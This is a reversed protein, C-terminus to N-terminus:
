QGGRLYSSIRQITWWLISISGIVIALITVPYLYSGGAVQDFVQMGTIVGYLPDEPDTPLPLPAIEESIVATQFNDFFVQPILWVLYAIALVLLLLGVVALLFLGLLGLFYLINAFLDSLLEGLAEGIINSLLDGLGNLFELIANLVDFLAALALLSIIINLLRIITAGFDELWVILQDLRCGIYRVWSTNYVMVTEFNDPGPAAWPWISLFWTTSTVPPILAMPPSLCEGPQGTTPPETGPPPEEPLSPPEDSFIVCIFDIELGTDGLITVDGSTYTDTLAFSTQLFGEGEVPSLSVVDSFTDTGGVNTLALQLTAEINQYASAYFRITASATSSVNLLSQSIVGSAGFSVVSGYVFVNETNWGTEGDDFDPNTLTDCEFGTTQTIEGTANIVCYQSIELTEPGDNFVLPGYGGLLATYFPYSLTITGTIQYNEDTSYIGPNNGLTVWTDAESSSLTLNLMYPAPEANYDIGVAGMRGGSQLTAQGGSAGFDGSYGQSGLTFQPNINLCQLDDFPNTLCLSDIFIQGQVGKLNIEVADSPLDLGVSYNQAIGVHCLVTKSSLLQTSNTRYVRVDFSCGEAGVADAVIELNYLGATPPLINQYLVDGPGIAAGEIQPTYGGLWYYPSPEGNDANLDPDGFICEGVSAASGTACGWIEISDFGFAVGDEGGGTMALGLRVPQLIPVAISLSAIGQEMSWLTINFTETTSFSSTQSIVDWGDGGNIWVELEPDTGTPYVGTVTIVEPIIEYDYVVAVQDPNYYILQGGILGSLTLEDDLDQIFFPIQNFEVADTDSGDFYDVGTWGESVGYADEIIPTGYNNGINLLYENQGAACISQSSVLLCTYDIGIEGTASNNQLVYSISETELLSPTALFASYYGTGTITLVDVDTGLFVNLSIPASTVQTVSLVANYGTAGDLTLGQAATDGPPLTLTSDSITASGSLQWTDSVIGTFHADAVTQCTGTIWIINIDPIEIIVDDYYREWDLAYYSYYAISISDLKKNLAADSTRTGVTWSSATAFTKQIYTGDTHHFFIRATGPATTEDKAALTVQIGSSSISGTGTLGIAAWIQFSSVEINSYKQTSPTYDHLASGGANGTHDRADSWVFNIRTMSGFYPNDANQWGELDGDFTTTYTYPDAAYVPPPYLIKNALAFFVTSLIISIFLKFIQRMRWEGLYPCITVLNIKHFLTNLLRM